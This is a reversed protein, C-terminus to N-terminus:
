TAQPNKQKIRTYVTVFYKLGQEKQRGGGRWGQGMVNCKLKPEITLDSKYLYRIFTANRMLSSSANCNLTNKHGPTALVSPKPSFFPPILGM